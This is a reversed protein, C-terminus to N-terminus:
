HLLTALKQEQRRKADNSLSGLKASLLPSSLWFLAAQTEAIACRGGNPGEYIDLVTGQKRFPVL